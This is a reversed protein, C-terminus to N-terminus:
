FVSRWLLLGIHPLLGRFVTVVIGYPMVIFRTMIVMLAMLMSFLMPLAIRMTM